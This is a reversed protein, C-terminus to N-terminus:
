ILAYAPPTQSTSRAACASGCVADLVTADGAFSRVDGSELTEDLTESVFLQQDKEVVALVKSGRTSLEHM